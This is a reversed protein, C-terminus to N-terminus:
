AIKGRVFISLNYYNTSGIQTGRSIVFIRIRNLTTVIGEITGNCQSTNFDTVTANIIPQEIFSKPFYLYGNNDMNITARYINGYSEFNLLEHPIVYIRSCEFWGDDYEICDWDDQTYTKRLVVNVESNDNLQMLM